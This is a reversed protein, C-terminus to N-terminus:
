KFWNNSVCYVIDSLIIKMIESERHLALKRYIGLAWKPDTASFGLCSSSMQLTKWDDKQQGREYAWVQFKHFLLLCANLTSGRNDLM